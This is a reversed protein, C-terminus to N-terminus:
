RSRVLRIRRKGRRGAQDPRPAPVPAAPIAMPAVTSTSHRQSPSTTHILERVIALQDSSLDLTERLDGDHREHYQVLMLAAAAANGAAALVPEGEETTDAAVVAKLLGEAWWTLDEVQDVATPRRLALAGTTEADFPTTQHVAASPEPFASTSILPAAM